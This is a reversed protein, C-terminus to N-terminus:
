GARLRYEHGSGRSAEVLAQALAPEAVDEALRVRAADAQEDVEISEVAALPALATRVRAACSACGAEEVM